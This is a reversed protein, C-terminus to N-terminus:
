KEQKTGHQEAMKTNQSVIKTKLAKQLYTNIHAQHAACTHMRAVSPVLLAVYTHIDVNCCLSVSVAPDM